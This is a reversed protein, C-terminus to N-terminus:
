LKSASHVKRMATRLNSSAKYPQIYVYKDQHETIKSSNNAGLSQERQSMTNSCREPKSNPKYLSVSMAGTHPRWSQM